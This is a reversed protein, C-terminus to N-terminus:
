DNIQNDISQLCFGFSQKRHNVEFVFWNNTFNFAKYINNINNNRDKIPKSIRSIRNYMFLEFCQKTKHLIQHRIYPKRENIIM